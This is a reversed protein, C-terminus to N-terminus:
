VRTYDTLTTKDGIVSGEGVTVNRGIHCSRGIISDRIEAATSVKTHSWLVSNEIM